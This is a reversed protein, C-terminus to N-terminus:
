MWLSTSHSGNTLNNRVQVTDSTRPMFAYLRVAVSAFTM